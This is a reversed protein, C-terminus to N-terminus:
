APAGDFAHTRSPEFYVTMGPRAGLEAAREADLEAAVLSGDDLGLEVQTRSGIVTVRQVSAARASAFPGSEIRLDTPRVYVTAAESRLENIEGFFEMVFPNAPEAYVRAPADQQQVEGDRLVVVRDAIEMAEDADHTVLLTTVHTREHLDRLWRRLSKRVQADLAAFPEDLLLTSPNAALARALAVRQRQGGSLEHPRREGLGGLDVLELLDRVRERIEPAPRNRVTLAFAINQAVTQHPFLAYNQFVFGVDRKGLARSTVDRGDLLIRGADPTEFGAIVRLLTTKGCGSPGLLAALTGREVHLDIDRLAPVRGFSKSVGEVLVSM